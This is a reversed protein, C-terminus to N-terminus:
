GRAIAVPPIGYNQMMVAAFRDQLLRTATTGAQEPSHTPSNTAAMDPASM